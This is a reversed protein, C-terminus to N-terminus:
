KTVVYLIVGCHASAFLTIALQMCRRSAEGLSVGVHRRNLYNHM